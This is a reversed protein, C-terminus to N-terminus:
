QIPSAPQKTATLDKGRAPQESQLITRREGQSNDKSNQVHCLSESFNGDWQLTQQLWALASRGLDQALFGQKPWSQKLCTVGAKSSEARHLGLRLPDLRGLESVRGWSLVAKWSEACMRDNIGDLAQSQHPWLTEHTATSTLMLKGCPGKRNINATQKTNTKSFSTPSECNHQM